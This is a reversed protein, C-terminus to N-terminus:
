KAETTAEHASINVGLALSSTTPAPGSSDPDEGELWLVFTYRIVENPKLGKLTSRLVSSSDIFPEAYPSDPTSIHEPVRKYEGGETIVRTKAYTKYNHQSLDKNEYFRVRLTDTLDFEKTNSENRNISLLVEYDADNDGINTVYFTYKYYLTSTGDGSLASKSIESDIKEHDQILADTYETYAPANDAVLFSKTETANIEKKLGVSANSNTTKITLPSAYQGLAAVAGIVIACAASISGVLAVTKRVRKRRLYTLDVM